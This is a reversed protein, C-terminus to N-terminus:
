VDTPPDRRTAPPPSEAVERGTDGAASGHPRRHRGRRRRRRSRRRSLAVEPVQNDAPAPAATQGAQELNEAPVNEGSDDSLQETERLEVGDSDAVDEDAFQRAERARRRRERWREVDGSPIPTALIQPWDFEVDPNQQELATRVSEDFPERGVKVNPPSRFWYLIRSRAPGRRNAVPQLLQFHEYGRKDRTFRLFAM